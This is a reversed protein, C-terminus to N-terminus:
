GKLSGFNVAPRSGIRKLPNGQPFVRLTLAKPLAVIM